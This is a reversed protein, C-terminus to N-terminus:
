RLFRPNLQLGLDALMQTCQRRLYRRVQDYGGTYGYETQLRRCIQAATHRQKRPAQEDSTVIAHGCSIGM